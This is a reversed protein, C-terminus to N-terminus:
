SQSFYFRDLAYNQKTKFSAYFHFCDQAQDKNRIMSTFVHSYAISSPIQEKEHEYIRSFTVSYVKIV